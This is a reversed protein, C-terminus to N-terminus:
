LAALNPDYPLTSAEAGKGGLDNDAATEATQGVKFRSNFASLTSHYTNLLVEASAEGLQTQSRGLPLEMRNVSDACIKMLAKQSAQMEQMATQAQALQAKVTALEATAAMLRDLMGTDAAPAAAAPAAAPAEAGAAPADAAAAPAEAGAAAAAAAAEAGAVPAEAGTDEESLAPDKLAVEAAVGSAVAAMGAANLKRKMDDTGAITTQSNITVVPQRDKVENGVALVAKDFSTIADVLGAAVADAGIFVRGEAATEILHQVTMSREVSVHGLFMDYFKGLRGEIDARAKDDLKEYPSGLAKFEGKRFMTVDIGSEQMARYYSFHASVVGISGSMAMASSYVKRGVSGLWYGASLMNSGTYSYVPMVNTDFDRLFDSLEGIGSVAGGGTDFDMLLAKAGGDAAAIAANRIEEYSVMGFYRNWFSEKPVLSGHVSLVAVGNSHLSLMYSYDGGFEDRDDPEDDDDDDDPDYYMRPDTAAARVMAQQYLQFSEDDGFWCQQAVPASRALMQSGRRNKRRKSRSM